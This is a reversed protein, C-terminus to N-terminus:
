CPSASHSRTPAALTATFCWGAAFATNNAKLPTLIKGCVTSTISAQRVPKAAQVLQRAAPVKAAVPVLLEIVVLQELEDECDTLCQLQVTDPNPFYKTRQM